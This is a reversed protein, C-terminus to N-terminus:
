KLPTLDIGSACILYFVYIIQMLQFTKVLFLTQQDPVLLVLQSCIRAEVELGLEESSCGIIVIADLIVTWRKRKDCSGKRCISVMVNVPNATCIFWFVILWLYFPFKLLIRGFKIFVWDTFRSFIYM